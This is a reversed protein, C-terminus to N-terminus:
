EGAALGAAADPHVPAWGLERQAKAGSARQDLLMADALGGFAARADDAPWSAVEDPTGPAKALAEAVELQTLSESVGLYKSGAEAGLALVYLAAIDDVHVLTTHTTGDGLYNVAGDIGSQVFLLPILGGGHGWVVGPMVLVPHGGSDAAALVTRENEIRWATIDPPSLPSEEAAVGGTNGYVWVGGTHVYPKGGLGALIAQAAALDATAGDADNTAALHIAADALSAAGTLTAADTLEGRVAVAGLADVTAESADSRVLASVDHGEARLQKIVAQGIYGTGGTVFVHM